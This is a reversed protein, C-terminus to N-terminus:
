KYDKKACWRIAQELLRRYNENRYADGDHGLQLYCVRAAKYNRSWGLLENNKPHSTRLLPRNNEEYVYNKYTEDRIPFDNIGKTVPHSKDVVEVTFDVGHEYAGRLYKVGALETDELYYRGGVIKRYEPWDQFSALAHHLVVVGVGEDLLRIFNARRKDSIRQTMNYLVIVDYPWNDIDEFIESDDRQPAEVFLVDNFHRFMDFFAEREFDHGGTVVVAKVTKACPCHQRELRNNCSGVMAATLLLLVANTIRSM